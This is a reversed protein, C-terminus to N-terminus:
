GAARLYSALALQGLHYTVHVAAREGPLARVFRNWALLSDSVLFLVGGAAAVPSGSAIASATMGALTLGYVVIAPRLSARVAALVPVFVWGTAVVVVLTWLLWRGVPTDFAALYAVHGVLFAALGATFRDGPLMLLVDGALSFVLAALLWPSPAPGVAAWGILAALTAPKCVWELRRLRRAVAIWDLVAFLAFALLWPSM